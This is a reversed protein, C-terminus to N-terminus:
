TLAACAQERPLGVDTGAEFEVEGTALNVILRGIHGGARGVVAIFLIGDSVYYRDPGVDHWVFTDGAANTFIFNQHFVDLEVNRNDPQDFTRVQIWGQINRVITQTGCNINTPGINVLFVQKNGSGDAPANAFLPANPSPQLPAPMECASAILCMAVLAVEPTRPSM